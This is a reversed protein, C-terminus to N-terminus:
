RLVLVVRQEGANEHVNVRTRGLSYFYSSATDLDNRRRGGQAAVRWVLCVLWGALWGALLAFVSLSLSSAWFPPPRRAERMLPPWPPAAQERMV